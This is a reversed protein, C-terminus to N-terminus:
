PTQPPYFLLRAETLRFGGPAVGETGGRHSQGPSDQLVSLVTLMVQLLLFTIEVELAILGPAPFLETNVCLWSFLHAAALLPM